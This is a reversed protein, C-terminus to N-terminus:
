YKSTTPFNESFPEELSVVVSTCKIDDDVEVEPDKIRVMIQLPVALEALPHLHRRRPRGGRLVQFSLM